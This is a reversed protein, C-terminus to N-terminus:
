KWGLTRASEETDENICTRGLQIPYGNDWRIFNLEWRPLSWTFVELFVCYGFGELNYFDTSFVPTWDKTNWAECFTKYFEQTFYRLSVNEPSEKLKEKMEKYNLM